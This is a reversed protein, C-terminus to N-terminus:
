GNGEVLLVGRDRRVRNETHLAFNGPYQLPKLKLLLLSMLSFNDICIFLLSKAQKEPMQLFNQNKQSIVILNM